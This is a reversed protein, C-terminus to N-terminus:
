SSDQCVTWVGLNWRSRGVGGFDLDMVLVGSWDGIYFVEFSVDFDGVPPTVEGDFFTVFEGVM